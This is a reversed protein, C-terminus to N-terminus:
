AAERRATLREVHEIPHAFVGTCEVVRVQNAQIWRWIIAAEESAEVSAPVETFPVTARDSVGLAVQEGGARTEVLCGHDIVAVTGDAHELEMWGAGALAAWEWRRRLATALSDHRDRAWAAEEYRQENSLRAM